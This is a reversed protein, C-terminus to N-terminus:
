PITLFDYGCCVLRVGPITMSCYRVSHIDNVNSLLTNFSMNVANHLIMCIIIWLRYYFHCGLSIRTSLFMRHPTVSDIRFLSCLTNHIWYVIDCSKIKHISMANHVYCGPNRWWPYKELRWLNSSIITPKIVNLNM